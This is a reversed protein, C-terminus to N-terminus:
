AGFREGLVARSNLFDRASMVRGGPPQLELLRVSGAGAAVDIGAPGTRWIEGPEGECEALAVARHLKIREDRRRTWAGPRPAFARVQRALTTAPDRWDIEAAAPDLKGAYTALTDDQPRPELRGGLIGPLTEVLLAACLEALRERLEGGTEMSGIETSQMKYVPGTDLGEDMHMISIGTLVDGALIAHQIPAAGRWRPLLSAHGNICGAPPLELVSSPLILGYDVVVVMDPRLEALAEVAAPDRLTLPTQVPLGRERAHARVPTPAPQRRRGAPRDPQTLVACIEWGAGALAELAPVAFDSSGAFVLRPM